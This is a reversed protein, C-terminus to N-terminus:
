WLQSLKIRSIVVVYTVILSRVHAAWYWSLILHETFDVFNTEVTVTPRNLPPLIVYRVQSLLCNMCLYFCLDPISRTAKGSCSM